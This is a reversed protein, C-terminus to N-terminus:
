KRAEAEAHEAQRKATEAERTTAPSLLHGETRLADYLKVSQGFWSAAAAWHKHKEAPSKSEAAAVAHVRGYRACFDAMSVRAPIDNADLDLLGQQLQVAAQISGLAGHSDAMKLQVTAREAYNGALMLRARADRSDSGLAATRIRIADNLHNLAEIARGGAGLAVGLFHHTAALDSRLNQNEPDRRILEEQGALARQLYPLAEAMQGSQAFSSGLRYETRSLERQLEANGPRMEVLSRRIELAERLKNRSEEWLDYVNLTYAHNELARSLTTKYEINGPDQAVLKQGLALAKRDFTLRQQAGSARGTLIGALLYNKLLDLQMTRSEPYRNALTERIEEAKKWTELAATPQGLGSGTIGGQLEAFKEYALALARRLQPDDGADRSLGNLYQLSQRLINERAPTSGPLRAISDHIDALFLTALQYDQDLRNSLQYAKWGAYVATACILLLGLVGAMVSTRHRNVFKGVRYTITDRRAIVPLGSLYRRLDESLQEVSTYRRHAEKRLAMALINDLDGRLLRQLGEVSTGRHEAVKDPDIHTEEIRETYSVVTSPRTPERECIIQPLEESRTSLRYPPHATLLEYLIVGLSYVDSAVGAHEGRIQEPSAYAPTAMRMGTVTIDDESMDTHVIKAIGFDLLKPVGEATVLINGPKLDRHVVLNQHAYVVANCVNLFLEVRQPITLNKRDCYESLAVGDVYELVFYPLGTETTGGDLLHAINPHDLRALIQRETRFRRLVLASDMGRSVIKIAVQIEFEDDARIARYVTGMGGRGIEEVLEYRGVRRGTMAGPAMATALQRRAQETDELFADSEDYAELLSIVEARLSADPCSSRLYAGREGVPRDLCSELVAKVEQWREANM